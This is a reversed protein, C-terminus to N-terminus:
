LSLPLGTPNKPEPTWDQPAAPSLTEGRSRMGGDAAQVRSREAGRQEEKKSSIIFSKQSQTKASTEGNPSTEKGGNM